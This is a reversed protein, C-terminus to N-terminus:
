GQTISKEVMQIADAESRLHIKEGNFREMLAKHGDYSRANKREYYRSAWDLLELLDQESQERGMHRCSELGRQRLRDRCLSWDTDLWIFFDARDMFKEALEGFVGEVIWSEERKADAIMQNVVEPYRKESFGGPQWFIHDLHIVQCHHIEALHTALWPKGSGSNGTIIIRM